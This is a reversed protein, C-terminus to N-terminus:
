LRTWGERVNWHCCIPEGFVLELVEFGELFRTASTSVEFDVALVFPEFLGSYFLELYPHFDPESSLKGNSM